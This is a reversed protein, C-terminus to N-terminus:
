LLAHGARCRVDGYRHTMPACWEFTISFDQSFGRQAVIRLSGSDPEYLQINGFDAQQLDIAAELIKELMKPADKVEILKSSLDHLRRLDELQVALRERLTEREAEIRRRAALDQCSVLRAWAMCGVAFLSSCVTILLTIKTSDDVRRQREDLLSREVSAMEEIQKQLQGHMVKGAGRQILEQAAAFGNRRRAEEVVRLRAMRDSVLQIFHQLRQEQAPNDAILLGLEREAEGLAGAATTYMALYDEDGTIVYGREATEADTTLAQLHDLHTLVQHTNEVWSASARLQQVSLYSVIGVAALCILAFVYSAQVKREATFRRTDSAFNNRLSSRKM